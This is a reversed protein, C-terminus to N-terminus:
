FIKMESRLFIWPLSNTYRRRLELALGYKREKEGGELAYVPRFLLFLFLYGAACIFVYFLGMFYKTPFASSRSAVKRGHQILKLARFIPVRNKYTTSFRSMLNPTSLPIRAIIDMLSTRNRSMKHSHWCIKVRSRILKWQVQHTPVFPDVVRKKSKKCQNKEAPKMERLSSPFHHRFIDHFNIKFLMSSM